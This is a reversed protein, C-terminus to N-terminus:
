ENPLTNRTGEKFNIINIDGALSYDKGDAGRAKIVYYYVGAPVLKGKYKGDWGIAPDTTSFMQIGWQNFIHCEFSVISQYSVKWEDNIGESAGPSFANPCEIKSEGITVQYVDSTWDCDGDANAALFRVYTTGYDHFTYNVVPENFQLDIIDFNPDRSMQWETYVVADTIAATFTIDVPASGGLDQADNKIENDNDRTSAEAMTHVDIAKTSYSPTTISVGRDWAQLFRDGTIEFDTNCLSAQVRLTNNIYAFTESARIPTYSNSNDDWELTNYEVLIDRSLDKPVGTITYYSIRSAQGDCEIATMSCDSDTDNVHADTVTMEHNEYNVVWYCHQRGNDTIVYGMDDSELNITYESGNKIVEVPLSYAGGMNSYKVWEVGATASSATYTATVGTTSSLVYLNELGTSADPKITVPPESNGAMRLQAMGTVACAVIIYTTLFLKKM